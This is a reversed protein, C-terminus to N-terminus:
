MLPMKFLCTVIISPISNSSGYTGGWALTGRFRIRLTDGALAQYPTIRLRLDKETGYTWNTYNSEVLLHQATGPSGGRDISDGYDFYSVTTGDSVITEVKAQYTDYPGSTSMGSHVATLERFSFSLGGNAATTTGGNRFTAELYFPENVYVSSPCSVEPNNTIIANPYTDPALSFNYSSPPFLAGTKSQWQAYASLSGPFGVMGMMLLGISLIVIFQPIRKLSM